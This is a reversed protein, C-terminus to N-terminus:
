EAIVPIRFFDAIRNLTLHLKQNIEDYNKDRFILIACFNNTVNYDTLAEDAGFFGSIRKLNACNSMIHEGLVLVSNPTVKIQCYCCCKRNMPVPTTKGYLRMEALWKVMNFGCANYVSIPTQSPLRADIELIKLVGNHSIVEIDFIGECQLERDLKQAIEFMQDREDDSLAAPAIIKKCDFHEDTVVETIMPLMIRGNIRLVELSFSRGSLYEGVIPKANGFKSLIDDLENESGAKFVMESGSANDPKVIVPFGCEPYKKPLPLSLKEFLKNSKEKSSSIEYAHEDFIVPTDTEKGYKVITRCVNINEVAPIVVDNEEFLRKMKGSECIERCVFIDALAAGPAYPNRDVATVYFGAKKALYIAEVGQLKCGIVLINM